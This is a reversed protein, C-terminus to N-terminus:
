KDIQTFGRIKLVITTNIKLYVYNGDWGWTMATNSGWENGTYPRIKKSLNNIDISNSNLNSNVVDFNKNLEMFCHKTDVLHM